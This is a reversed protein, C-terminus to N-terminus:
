SMDIFHSILNIDIQRDIHIENMYFPFCRHKHAIQTNTFASCIIQECDASPSSYSPFSKFKLSFVHADIKKCSAHM